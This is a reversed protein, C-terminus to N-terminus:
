VIFLLISKLIDYYIFIYGRPVISDLLEILIFGHSIVMIRAFASGIQGAGIMGVTQGKILYANSSCYVKFYLIRFDYLHPLWGDYLGVRMFEDSEIIRRTPALSLSAALKTTTETLVGPTNGVAIGYKNAANVDVNNYGVVM